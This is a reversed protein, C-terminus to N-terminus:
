EAPTEAEDPAPEDEDDKGGFIGKLIWGLGVGTATLLLGAGVKIATGLGKKQKVNAVETPTEPNQTGEKPEAGNTGKLEKEKDAM